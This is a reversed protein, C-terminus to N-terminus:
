DEQVWIWYIGIIVNTTPIIEQICIGIDKESSMYVNSVHGGKKICTIINNCKDKLISVLQETGHYAFISDHIYGNSGRACIKYRKDLRKKM